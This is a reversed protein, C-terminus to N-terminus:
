WNQISEVKGNVFMITRSPNRFSWWEVIGLSSEDTSIEYPNKGMSVLVLIKSMGIAIKRNKVLSLMNEDNIYKKPNFEYYEIEGPDGVGRSKTVFGYKEKESKVKLYYPERGILNYKPVIDIVTVKELREFNCKGAYEITEKVSRDLWIKKGIWQNKVSDLHEKFYAGELISNGSYTRIRGRLYEGNQLNLIYTSSYTTPRYLGTVAGKLGVYKGLDKEPISYGNIYIFNDLSPDLIVFEMGDFESKELNSLVSNKKSESVWSPGCSYLFFSIIIILPSKQSM